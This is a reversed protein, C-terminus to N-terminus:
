PSPLKWKERFKNALEPSIGIATPFKDIRDFPKCADIIAMSTVIPTDPVWTLDLPETRCNRIIDIDKEPNSRFGVAWLVDHMNSPDIDEDVVIVYKGQLVTNSQSIVLGAQKAHGAHRQKISVVIITSPGDESYYVGRVDPVGFRVLENHMIACDMLTKVMMTIGPQPRLNAFGLLIPNNRYYIREVEIILGPAAPKGYYGTWEAFPGEMKRKDPPCWGAIVIESNAPIPLGTIEETIVETPEGRIAGMWNYECGKLGSFGMSFLLPHHGVSVAIPCAQGKDHYKQLNIRGHRGPAIFIGTTKEDQIMVRYTGLNVEGTDPDRTIVIDGTGIYRGGDLENWKPVPFRLLDVDDGSLVNELVPGGKVIKPPYKDLSAEWQPLKKRLTDILEMQSGDPINLTLATEKPTSLRAVALKYGSPYDKINDFLFVSTRDGSVKPDAFCTVELNWDVGDIKRLSGAAEVKALWDRLDESAM